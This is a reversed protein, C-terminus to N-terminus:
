LAPQLPAIHRYTNPLHPVNIKIGAAALERKLEEPLNKAFAILNKQYIRSIDRSWKTFAWYFVSVFRTTAVLMRHPLIRVLFATFAISKGSKSVEKVAKWEATPTKNEM